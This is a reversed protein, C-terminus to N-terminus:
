KEAVDLNWLAQLVAVWADRLAADSADSEGTESQCAARLRQGLVPIELQGTLALFGSLRM